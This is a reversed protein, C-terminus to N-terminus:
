AGKSFAEMLKGRGMDGGAAENQSGLDWSVPRDARLRFPSGWAPGEGFYDM